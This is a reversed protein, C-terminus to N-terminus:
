CACTRWFQHKWAWGNTEPLMEHRVYICSAEDCLVTSSWLFPTFLIPRCTPKVHANEQTLTISVSLQSSRAQTSIDLGVGRPINSIPITLLRAKLSSRCNNSLDGHCGKVDQRHTYHLARHRNLSPSNVYSNGFESSEFRQGKFHLNRANVIQILISWRM